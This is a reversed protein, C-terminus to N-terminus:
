VKKRRYKLLKYHFCKQIYQNVINMFSDMSKSTVYLRFYLKGRMLCRCVRVDLKYIVFLAKRLKECDARSFCHTAFLANAHYKDRFDLTGDDQYWVALTIPNRLYKVINNPIIKKGNPYFIDRFYYLKESVKTYFRYQHFGKKKKIKSPNLELLQTRIWRLYGLYKQDYKLDLYSTKKKGNPKSLYGDGLILGVLIAEAQKEM